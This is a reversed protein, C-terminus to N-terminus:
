LDNEQGGQEEQERKEAAAALAKTLWQGRREQDELWALLLPIQEETLPKKYAKEVVEGIRERRKATAEKEAADERRKAEKREKELAKIMADIEAATKQRKSM